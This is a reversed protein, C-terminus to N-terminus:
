KFDEAEPLREADTTTGRATTVQQTSTPLSVPVDYNDVIVDFFTDAVLEYGEATLHLDDNGICPFSIPSSTSCNGQSVVEFVDVLPISRAAAISLIMSNYGPVRSALEQRSGFVPRVPPITALVPDVGRSQAEAVMAEIAAAAESAIPQGLDITGQMLLVVEPQVSALQSAFRSFAETAAEGSLGANAVTILQAPYAQRLRGQLQFPYAKSPEVFAPGLLPLSVEGATLSDGFALFKTVALQPPPLVQVAFSCSSTQGLDDSASCNVTSTGVPFAVGSPPACTSSVPALGGSLQPAPFFAPATAGTLSQTVVNAPCTLTLVEVKDTPLSSPATPPLPGSEECAALCGLVIVCVSLRCAFRSMFQYFSNVLFGYRVSSRRIM